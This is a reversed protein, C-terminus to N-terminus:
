RHGLLFTHCGQRVKGTVITALGLLSFPFLKGVGKLVFVAFLHLSQSFNQWHREYVCRPGM